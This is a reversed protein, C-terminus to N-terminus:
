QVIIEQTSLEHVDGKIDIVHQKVATICKFYVNEYFDYLEDMDLYNLNFINGHKGSKVKYEDEDKKFAFENVVTAGFSDENPLNLAYGIAIHWFGDNKFTTADKVPLDESLDPHKLPKFCIIDERSCGLYTAWGRIIREMLKPSEENLKNFDYVSDAYISNLKELKSM